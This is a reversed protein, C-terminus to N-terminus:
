FKMKPREITYMIQSNKNIEDNNAKINSKIKYILKMKNQKRGSIQTQTM